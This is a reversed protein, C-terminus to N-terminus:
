DLGHEQLIAEYRGSAKLKDLGINFASIRAINSKDKKSFGLHFRNINLEPELVEIEDNNINYHSKSSNIFNKVSMEESALLDLRNVYLMEVGQKHTNVETKNLFDAHEFEDSIATGRLLGVKYPALDAIKEYSLNRSKKAFIVMRVAGYPNSYRLWNEREKTHYIESAGNCREGEKAEVVVRKWPLWRRIVQYGQLAFAEDVIQVAYGHKPLDQGVYPPWNDLTCLTVTKEAANIHLSLSLLILAFLKAVKQVQQYILIAM